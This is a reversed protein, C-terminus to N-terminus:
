NIKCTETEWSKFLSRVKVKFEEVLDIYMGSFTMQIHIDKYLYMTKCRFRSLEKKLSTAMCGAVWEKDYNMSDNPYSKFFEWSVRYKSTYVRYLQAVNDFEIIRNKYPGYGKWAKLVTPPFRNPPHHMYLPTIFFTLNHSHGIGINTQYNLNHLPIKLLEGIDKDLGESPVLTPPFGPRFYKIPISLSTNGLIVCAAKDDMKPPECGFLFSIFFWLLIKKM